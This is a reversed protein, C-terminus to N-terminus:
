REPRASLPKLRQRREERVFHGPRSGDIWAEVLPVMVAFLGVASVALGAYGLM